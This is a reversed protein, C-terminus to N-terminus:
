HAVVFKAAYLNDRSKANIVYAGDPLFTNIILPNIWKANTNLVAKGSEDYIWLEFYSEEPNRITLKLSNGKAPNPFVKIKEVDQKECDIKSQGIGPVSTETQIIKQMTGDENYHLLDVCVSRRYTGGSPLAGNHYIFYWTDKYKLIAQHNTNSNEVYDNLIGKYEWPGTVSNSVSYATKSPFEIAYTLYYIDNRKHIYPAEFFNHANVTQVPGEMEIMNNKLKVYRCAGWSGWYLYIQGDDDIFVVPDINLVVSNPTNDTILPEGIADVFPGTPNDSVAVGIAFGEGVKITKHTLPVFWWFRNDYEVCHGAFANAKAWSFDSVSLKAGHDTYNVMDITSFVHWDNMLFFDGNTQEDHGTYIFLTDNHVLAAPDATFIHKIVPNGGFEQSFGNILNCLYFCSLLILFLYNIKM